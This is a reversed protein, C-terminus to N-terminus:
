GRAVPGAVKRMFEARDAYRCGRDHYKPRGEARDNVDDSIVILGGMGRMRTWDAPTLLEVWGPPADRMTWPVTHRGSPWVARDGM